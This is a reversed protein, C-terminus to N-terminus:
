LGSATREKHRNYTIRLGDLVLRSDVIDIIPTNQAVMRSLGGTAVVKVADGYGMEAKARRILYEMSGIYGGVAGAQIQSVATCGLVKDPMALEVNPLNATKQFLAETSIRVGATICGGMYAGGESLADVTTATGFDLVVLPAGYKEIAAVCAMARDAGLREDGPVGYPLGPDVGDDVVLPIKDFYKIVANTLSHMVPPAVSAIIVDEVAISELGFRRFYECALLGIEDSTRNVDTKLRFSGLLEEGNFIGFVMNTNGVDIVVLM